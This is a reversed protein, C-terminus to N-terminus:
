WGWVTVGACFILAVIMGVYLRRMVRDFRFTQSPNASLQDLYQMRRAISPHFWDRASLPINNVVAVRHLASAFLEAGRPGVPPALGTVADQGWNSDMMRAAYIDAQREFRRSLMGFFVLMGGFVTCASILQRIEEFRETRAWAPLRAVMWNDVIQGPGLAALTLTLFFVVFWLMHRHVIHGLEHAFVAEIQQDSMTEILRDSLLVYRLGPFIGIVAANAISHDTRWLLIDRCRLGSQRCIAELRRRLPSDPLTRADFIRRLLEPALVYVTLAAPLMALDMFEPRIYPGVALMTLDRLFIILLVPAVIPLLQQRLATVFHRRFGPPMRVPLNQYLDDLINQERMARDAPFEAWWLGMWALFAPATGLLVGPLQMRTGSVALVVQGWAADSFLGFMLWAPIIWRTLHSVRNFRRLSQHLDGAEIGRSLRRAWVGMGLVLAFYGALFLLLGPGVIFAPQRVSEAGILWIGLILLLILRSM